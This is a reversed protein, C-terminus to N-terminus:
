KRIAIHMYFRGKEATFITKFCKGDFIAGDRYDFFDRSRVAKTVMSKRLFLHLLKELSLEQEDLNEANTM